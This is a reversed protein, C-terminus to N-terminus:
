AAARVRHWRGQRTSIREIGGGRTTGPLPFAGPTLQKWLGTLPKELGRPLQTMGGYECTRALAPVRPIEVAVPLGIVESMERPTLASWSRYRAIPHISLHASQTLSVIHAAVACARVEAPTVLVLADCARAIESTAASWPPLDVITIGAIHAEVLALVTDTDVLQPHTSRSSTLVAVHDCAPCAEALRAASLLSLDARVDDGTTSLTSTFDEWRAGPEEELGLLLDLGGSCPVADVLLATTPATLALGAAITSTGAGGCAGIVGVVLGSGDASSGTAHPTTIAASVATLLDGSMAPLSFAGDAHIRTAVQWDIPGPDPCVLFKTTTTTPIADAHYTDVILITATRAHRRIDVAETAEVIDLGTVAGIHHIDSMIAEDDTALLLYKATMDELIGTQAVLRQAHRSGQAYSAACTAERREGQPYFWGVQCMM